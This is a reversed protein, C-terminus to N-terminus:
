DNGDEDGWDIEQWFDPEYEIYGYDRDYGVFGGVRKGKCHHFDFKDFQYLNNIWRYVAFYQSDISKSCCLYQKEETPKEKQTKHWKNM